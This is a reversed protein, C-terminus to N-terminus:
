QQQDNTKPFVTVLDVGPGGALGSNRRRAAISQPVAKHGSGTGSGSTEKGVSPPPTRFGHLTETTTSTHQPTTPTSPPRTEDKVPTVARSTREQQQNQQQPQSGPIVSEITTNQGSERVMFRSNSGSGFTESQGQSQENPQSSTSLPSPSSPEHKTAYLNVTSQKNKSSSAIPSTSAKNTKKVLFPSSDVKSLPSQDPSPSSAATQFHVLPSSTMPSYPGAASTTSMSLEAHQMTPSASPSRSAQLRDRNLLYNPDLTRPPPRTPSSALLLITRAAQTDSPAESDDLRDDDTEQQVMMASSATVPSTPLSYSSWNSGTTSSAYLPGPSGYGTPSHAGYQHAFLSSGVHSLGPSPSPSSTAIDMLSKAPLFLESDKFQSFSPRAKYRRSAAAATPSTQRSYTTSTDDEKAQADTAEQHHKKSHHQQQYGTESTPEYDPFEKRVRKRESQRPSATASASLPRKSPLRPSMNPQILSEVEQLTYKSWGRRIKLIAYELRTRLRRSVKLVRGHQLVREIMKEKTLQQQKQNDQLITKTKDETTWTLPGADTISSDPNVDKTSLTTQTTSPSIDYTATTATTADTSQAAPKGASLTSHPAHVHPFSMAPVQANAMTTMSANTVPSVVQGATPQVVEM